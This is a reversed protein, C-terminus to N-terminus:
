PHEVTADPGPFVLAEHGDDRRVLYPPAGDEGRVEIIESKQDPAGVVRSHIHLRDGVEARMVFAGKVKEDLM